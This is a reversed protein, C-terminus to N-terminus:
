LRTANYFSALDRLVQIYIYIYIYESAKLTTEWKGDKFILLGHKKLIKYHIILLMGAM